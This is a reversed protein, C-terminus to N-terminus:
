NCFFIIFTSIQIYFDNRFCNMLLTIHVRKAIFHMMTLSVLLYMLFFDLFNTTYYRLLLLMVLVYAYYIFTKDNGDSHSSYNIYISPQFRLSFFLIRPPHISPHQSTSFQTYSYDLFLSSFMAPKIATNIIFDIFYPWALLCSSSLPRLRFLLLASFRFPVPFIYSIWM